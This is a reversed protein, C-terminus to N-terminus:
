KVCLVDSKIAEECLNVIFTQTSLSETWKWLEKDIIRESGIKKTILYYEEKSWKGFLEDLDSYSKTYKKEKEFGTSM